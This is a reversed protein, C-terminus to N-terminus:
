ILVFQQVMMWFSYGTVSWATLCFEGSPTRNAFPTVFGFPDSVVRFTRRWRLLAVGYDRFLFFAFFVLSSAYRLYM